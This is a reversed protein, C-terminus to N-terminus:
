EAASCQCAYVAAGSCGLIGIRTGRTAAQCSTCAWNCEDIYALCIGDAPCINGCCDPSNCTADFCLAPSQLGCVFALAMIVFACNRVTKTTIM